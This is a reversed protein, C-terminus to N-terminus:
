IDLLQRIPYFDYNRTLWFKPNWGLNTLRSKEEFYSVGLAIGQINSTRPNDLLATINNLCWVVYNAIFKSSKM